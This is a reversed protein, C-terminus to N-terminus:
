DNSAVVFAAIITVLAGILFIGLPLLIPLLALLVPIGWGWAVNGVLMLVTALILLVQM